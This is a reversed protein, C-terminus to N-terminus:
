RGPSERKSLGLIEQMLAEQRANTQNFDNRLQTMEKSFSAMGDRFKKKRKDIRSIYKKLLEILKDENKM